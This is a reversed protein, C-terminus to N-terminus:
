SMSWTDCHGASGFSRLTAEPIGFVRTAEAWVCPRLDGGMGWM